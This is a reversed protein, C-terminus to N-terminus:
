HLLKPHFKSQLITLRRVVREFDLKEDSSVLKSELAHREVRKEGSAKELSDVEHFVVTSKKADQKPKGADKARKRNRHKKEDEVDKWDDELDSDLARDESSRRMHEKSWKHSRKEEEHSGSVKTHKFGFEGSDGSREFSGSKFKKEKVIEASRQRDKVTEKSRRRWDKVTKALGRSVRRAKRLRRRQHKRAAEKIRRDKKLKQFHWYCILIFMITLFFGFSIVVVYTRRQEEEQTRVSFFPGRQISKANTNHKHFVCFIKHKEKE